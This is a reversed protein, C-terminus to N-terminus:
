FPIQNASKIDCDCSLTPDQCSVCRKKREEEDKKREDAEDEQSDGSTDKGKKEIIFNEEEQSSEVGEKNLTKSAEKQGKSEEHTLNEKAWERLYYTKEWDIHCERALWGAIKWNSERRRTKQLLTERQTTSLKTLLQQTNFTM